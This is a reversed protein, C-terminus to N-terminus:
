ENTDPIPGIEGFLTNPNKCKVEVIVSEFTGDQYFATDDRAIYSLGDCISITVGGRSNM